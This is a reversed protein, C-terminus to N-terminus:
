RVEPENLSLWTRVAAYCAEKFDITEAPGFDGTTIRPFAKAVSACCALQADEVVSDIKADNSPCDEAHFGKGGCRPCEDGHEVGCILCLNTAPSVICQEDKTHEENAAADNIQDALATTKTLFPELATSYDNIVVGPENGYVFIVSGMRTTDRFVRLYDEDTSRLANFIEEANTSHKVTTDEGDFVSLNFGAELFESIASRMILAELELRNDNSITM